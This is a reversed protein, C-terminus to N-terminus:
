GKLVAFGADLRDMATNLEEMSAAYSLRLGRPAGFAGGHV